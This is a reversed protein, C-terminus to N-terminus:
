GQETVERLQGTTVDYVFGRVSDTHPLFVCSRV